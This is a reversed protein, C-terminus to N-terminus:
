KALLGVREITAREAKFRRARGLARLGREVQVLVLQDLQALMKLHEPDDIARKFADHLIKVVQPAMGKPGVLGYPSNSM